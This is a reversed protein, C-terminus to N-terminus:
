MGARKSSIHIAIKPVAIAKNMFEKIKVAIERKVEAKKEETVVPSKEVVDSKPEATATDDIVDFFSLQTSTEEQKKVTTKPAVFADVYQAIFDEQTKTDNSRLSAIDADKFLSDLFELITKSILLSNDINLVKCRDMIDNEIKEIEKLNYELNM